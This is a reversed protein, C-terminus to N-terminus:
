DMRAVEFSGDPQVICVMAYDYFLITEDRLKTMALPLMAPDGPYYIKFTKPNVMKFKSMPRWGGGHGYADNFQEKAPKPNDIDLMGPLFGLHESTFGKVLFKWVPQM